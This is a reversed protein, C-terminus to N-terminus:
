RGTVPTSPSAANLLQGLQQLGSSAAGKRQYVAPGRLLSYLATESPVDEPFLRNNRVFAVAAALAPPWNKPETELWYKIRQERSLAAYKGETLENAKAILDDATAKSFLCLFRSYAEARELMLLGNSPLDIPITASVKIGKGDLRFNGDADAYLEVTKTRKEFQRPDNVAYDLITLTLRTLM